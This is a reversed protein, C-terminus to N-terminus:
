GLTRAPDRFAAGHLRRAIRLYAEPLEDVTAVKRGSCRAVSAGPADGMEFRPSWGNYDNFHVSAPVFARAADRLAAVPSAFTHLDHVRQSRGSAAYQVVLWSEERLWADEGVLELPALAHRRETKTGPPSPGDQVGDAYSYTTIVVTPAPYAFKVTRGTVPNAWDELLGGGALDTHYMASASRVEYRGDGLDRCRHMSGVHMDFFPTLVTDVFGYRRGRMWWFVIREDGAFRVRRYVRHLNAPADIAGPRADRRAAAGTAPPAGSAAAAEAAGHTAGAALAAGALALGSAFHRRDIRTM